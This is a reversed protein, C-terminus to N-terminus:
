LASLFGEAEFEKIFAEIQADTMGDAKAKIGEFQKKYEDTAKYKAFKEDRFKEFEERSLAHREAEVGDRVIAVIYRAYTSGYGMHVYDVMEGDPIILAGTYWSAVVDGGAPFLESM